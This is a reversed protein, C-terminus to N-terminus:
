SSIGHGVPVNQLMEGTHIFKEREKGERRGREREARDIQKWGSWDVVKVGSDPLEKRLGEWGAPPSSDDKYLLARGSLWDKIIADATHFADQMTSAIVGSPGRKVWGACYLGSFWEPAPHPGGASSRLVRGWSDHVIVGRRNDFLIGLDRFESLPTSRYGISRFVLSSPITVGLGTICPYAGHDFTSSLNTRELVTSGVDDSSIGDPLFRSPSLCFDLSWSKRASATSVSSGNVIVEM